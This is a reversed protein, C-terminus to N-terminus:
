QKPTLSWAGFAAGGITAFIASIALLEM